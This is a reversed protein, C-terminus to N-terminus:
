GATASPPPVDQPLLEILDQTTPEALMGTRLAHQETMSRFLRRTSRGGGFGEERSLAGFYRSVEDKTGPGLEYRHEAAQSRVIDTLQDAAYDEFMLTRTFRAALGPNSGIFRRMDEPYGAVIVVIEDRHDEMLKVLTAVAELGFDDGGGGFPVLAHAEDIFLVGGLAKRFAATTKPATHGAYEGVLMARDVEVLHGREILGLEHLIRGYLRAVTAKGTGPNGAFVLHRSTPPPPLNNEIRRRALRMVNIMANIDRKVSELGILGNLEAVLADLAPPAPVAVPDAIDPVDPIGPIEATDSGQDMEQVRVSRLVPDARDGLHVAPSATGSIECDEFEGHSDEAFYFGSKGAGAVVVGHASATAGTWVVLASGGAEEIRCREIRATTDAGVMIGARETKQVTCGTLLVQGTTEASIGSLGSIRVTSGDIRLSSNETARVGHERSFEVVCDELEAEAHGALHIASFATETLECGVLRASANGGVFLGNGGVGSIHSRHASLRASDRLGVGTSPAGRVVCEELKLRTTGGAMLGAGSITLGRLEADARVMCPRELEITVSGPGEAAVLTVQRGIALQERYSGAPIQVIAGDAAGALLNM